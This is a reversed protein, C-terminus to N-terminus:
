ESGVLWCNIGRIVIVSINSGIFIWIKIIRAITRNKARIATTFIVLMYRPGSRGKLYTNEKVFFVGM